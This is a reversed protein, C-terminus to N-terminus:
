LWGFRHLQFVWSVAFVAAVLPWAVRMARPRWVLLVAALAVLVPRARSVVPVPAGLGGLVNVEAQLGAGVVLAEVAVTVAGPDAGPAVLVTVTEDTISCAVVDPIRRIGLELEEHGM